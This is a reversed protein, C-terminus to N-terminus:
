LRVGGGGGDVVGAGLQESVCFDVGEGFAEGEWGELREGVAFDVEDSGGGDGFEIVRAVHICVRPLIIRRNPFRHRAKPSLSGM